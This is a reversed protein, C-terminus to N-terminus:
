RGGHRELLVVCEIHGTRPFLDFPYVTDSSFGEGEFLKLDRALTDPNCSIYVIKRPSLESLRKILEERCGARPPDIIIVDAASLKESNADSLIFEANEVRNIKANERANEVAEPVIEVGILRKAGSKKLMCLGITGVGCFLDAVTDSEKIDALCVAKEYLREAMKSNVQYFSNVSLRFKLGLLTDEIYDRGGILRNKDGLIVNGESTNINLMVSKVSPHKEMIYDAFERECSLSNGNIVIVAAVEGSTAGIRLYIHRVLGKKTEEDYLSVKKEKLFEAIDFLIPSLRKDELLCGRHPVVRHSKRSYFGVEYDKTLPLAIKNRYSNEEGYEVEAVPLDVKAKRLANIIYERKLKREYEYSINRYSCGGCLRFVPCGEEVRLPSSAITEEVRAVLYDKAVKIVKAFVEDGTVAGAIFVVKGNPSDGARAVGYGMNNIDRVTLRIIDNKKIEM